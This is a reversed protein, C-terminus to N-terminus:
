IEELSLEGPATAPVGTQLQFTDTAPLPCLALLKGGPSPWWHWFDRDLGSLEIDGTLMRTTEDTQGLFGIGALKRVASSAGDCGVAYFSPYARVGAQQRSPPVCSM